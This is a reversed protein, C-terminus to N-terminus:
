KKVGSDLAKVEEVLRKTFDTTKANGGVDPTLYKGESYVNILSDKILEGFRTLGSSRLLNVSALLLGTPNAVNKGTLNAGSKRTRPSCITGQNM